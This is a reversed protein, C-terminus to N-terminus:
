KGKNYKSWVSDLFNDNRGSLKNLAPIDFFLDADFDIVEWAGERIEYDLQDPYWLSSGSYFRFGSQKKAEIIRSYAAPGGFYVGDIVFFSDEHPKSFESKFTIGLDYESSEEGSTECFESYSHLFFIGPAACPGGSFVSVTHEEKCIRKFDELSQSGIISNDARDSETYGILGTENVSNLIIGRAGNEDHSCIFVVVKEFIPDTIASTAVLFKSEYM